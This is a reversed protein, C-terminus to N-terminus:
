PHRGSGDHGNLSRVSQSIETGIESLEEIAGAFHGVAKATHNDIEASFRVLHGLNERLRTGIAELDLM